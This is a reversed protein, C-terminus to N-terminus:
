SFCHQEVGLELLHLVLNCKVTRNSECVIKGRKSAKKKKETKSAAVLLQTTNCCCVLARWVGAQERMCM